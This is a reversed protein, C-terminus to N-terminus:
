SFLDNEAKQTNMAACIAIHTPPSDSSYLLNLYGSPLGLVSDCCSPSAGGIRCISTSSIRGVFLISLVLGNSLHAPHPMGRLNAVHVMQVQLSANSQQSSVHNSGMFPPLLAKLAFLKDLSLRFRLKSYLKRTKITKRQPHGRQPVALSLM